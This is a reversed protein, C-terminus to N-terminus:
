RIFGPAAPVQGPGGFALRAAKGRLVESELDLRFANLIRKVAEGIPLISAGYKFANLYMEQFPPQAM